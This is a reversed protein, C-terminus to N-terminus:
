TKPHQTSRPRRPPEGRAVRWARIGRGVLRGAARASVEPMNGASPTSRQALQAALRRTEQIDAEVQERSLGVARLQEEAAEPQIQQLAFTITAFMGLLGDFRGIVPILGPLMDIVPLGRGLLGVLPTRGATSMRTDAALHTALQAYRPLRRAIGVLAERTSEPAAEIAVESSVAGDRASAEPGREQEQDQEFEM